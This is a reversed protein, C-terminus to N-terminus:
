GGALGNVFVIGFKVVESTAGMVPRLLHGLAGSFVLVAFLVWSYPRVSEYAERLSAPLLFELISGGDLPPIPVLNFVAGFVNLNVGLLLVEFVNKQGQPSDSGIGGIALLYVGVALFCAIGLLLSVAPGGLATLMGHLRPNRMRRPSVPTMALFMWSESTWYVYAPLLITLVPHVHAFPNFTMRGARRPTDDGFRDALFAHAFEHLAVSLVLVTMFTLLDLVRAM